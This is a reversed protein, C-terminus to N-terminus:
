IVQSYQTQYTPSTNYATHSTQTWLTTIPDLCYVSVQAPWKCLSDLSVVCVSMVNGGNWDRTWVAWGVGIRQVGVGGVRGRAFDMCMECVGGVGRVGSMEVVQVVHVVWISM